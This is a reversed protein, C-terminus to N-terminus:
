WLGEEEFDVHDLNNFGMGTRGQHAEDIVVCHTQCLKGIKCIIFGLFNRSLLSTKKTSNLILSGLVQCSMLATLIMPFFPEYTLSAWHETLLPPVLVLIAGEAHEGYHDLAGSCVSLANKWDEKM